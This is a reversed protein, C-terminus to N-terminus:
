AGNAPDAIIGNLFRCNEERSQPMPQDLFGESSINFFRSTEGYVPWDPALSAVNHSISVKERLQGAVFQRLYSQYQLATTINPVPTTTNDSYFM